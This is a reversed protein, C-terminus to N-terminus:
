RGDADEQIAAIESLRSRVLRGQEGSVGESDFPTSLVLSAAGQAWSEDSWNEVVVPVGRRSPLLASRFAPEFGFSWHQWAATGEGLVVVVEPDFIQVVGAVVRGLVHGSRGFIEQAERDGDDAARTLATIGSSEGIVGAARARRELAAEGVVTELCGRNGCTCAEGDEYLPVHGIEGAGGAGGRVVIGDVVIAAGVGTGITLVLYNRHQRGVGFLQEAMALANVNNEVLV